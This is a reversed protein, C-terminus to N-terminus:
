NTSSRRKHGDHDQISETPRDPVAYFRPGVLRVKKGVVDTIYVSRETVNLKESAIPGAAASVPFLLAFFFAYNM